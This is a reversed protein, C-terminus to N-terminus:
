RKRLCALLLWALLVAVGAGLLLLIPAVTPAPPAQVRTTCDSCEISVSVGLVAILLKLLVLLLYM